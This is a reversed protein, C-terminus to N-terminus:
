RWNEAIWPYERQLKKHSPDFPGPFFVIKARNLNKDKSRCQCYFDTRFNFIGDRKSWAPEHPYLKYSIWAQDSGVTFGAKYAKRHTWRNKKGKSAPGLWILDKAYFDNWVQPRTGPRHMWMSGCYPTANTGPMWAKFDPQEALLSTIDDLIVVDLDMSVFTEGVVDIMESSFARLRRFCSGYHKFDDWVPETRISGDIGQPDDTFCIIEYPKQYNRDIMSAFRNVHEATFIERQRFAEKVPKWKWCVIKIKKGM